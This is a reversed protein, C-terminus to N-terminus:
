GIELCGTKLSVLGALNEWQAPIVTPWLPGVQLLWNSSGWISMTFKPPSRNSLQVTSWAPTCLGLALVYMVPCLDICHHSSCILQFSWLDMASWCTPAFMQLLCIRIQSACSTCSCGSPGGGQGPPLCYLGLVYALAFYNWGWHRYFYLGWKELSILIFDSFNLFLAFRM